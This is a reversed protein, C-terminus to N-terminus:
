SRYREVRVRGNRLVRVLAVMRYDKTRVGVMVHVRLSSWGSCAFPVQSSWNPHGVLHKTAGEIAALESKTTRKSRHDHSFGCVWRFRGGPYDSGLLDVVKEISPDAARSM